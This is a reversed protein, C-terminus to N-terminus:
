GSAQASPRQSRRVRQGAPALGPAPACCPTPPARGSDRFPGPPPWAGAGVAQLRFSATGAQGDNSERPPVRSPPGSSEPSCPFPPERERLPADTGFVRPRQWLCAGAGRAGGSVLGASAFATGRQTGGPARGVQSGREARM